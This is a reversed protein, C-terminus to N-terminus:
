EEDKLHYYATLKKRQRREERKIVNATNKEFNFHFSPGFYPSFGKNHSGNENVFYELTSKQDYGTLKQKPAQQNIEVMTSDLYKKELKTKDLVDVQMLEHVEPQLVFYKRDDSSNVFQKKYAIHYILLSDKVSFEIHFNGNKDTHVIKGTKVNIIAVGRIPVSDTGVVIGSIRIKDLPQAYSQLVFLFCLVSIIFRM